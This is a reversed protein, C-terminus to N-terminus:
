NSLDIVTIANSTSLAADVEAEFEDIEAQQEKLKEEIKLPDLWHFEQTAIYNGQVSDVDKDIAERLQKAASTSAIAAASNGNSYYATALKLANERVANNNNNFVAKQEDVRKRMVAILTKRYEVVKKHSIADAVTMSRGNIEITTNSNSEVIANKIKTKRAILDQVSQWNQQADAEFDKVEILDNIKKNKKHFSVPLISDIGRHIRNDLLKLEALARHVTMQNKNETAM